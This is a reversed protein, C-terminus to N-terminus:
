CESSDQRALVFAVAEEPPMPRSFLFGQVYGCGARRLVELQADTEVGEAVLRLGLGEALTCVTSVIVQSYPDQVLDKIFYRDLKMASLKVRKIYSLSSYGTGFDDLFLRFGATELARVTNMTTGERIFCTETLEIALWAPPIQHRTTLSLLRQTLEALEFTVASFNLAVYLGAHWRDRHAHLLKCIQEAVMLDLHPILRSREAEQIFHNPPLLGRTPHQWRVLAEMGVPRGDATAHIPQLYAVFEQEAIARQLEQILALQSQMQETLQHRFFSFAGKGKEKADYMALDAYQQLRSLHEHVPVDQLDQPALAIGISASIRAFIDGLQVPEGCVAVLRQILPLLDEPEQFQQVVIVFEDGGLRAVVDQTRLVSRLRCAIQKLLQDGSSHGYTDNVVKFGDLDLFMLACQSSERRHSSLIKSLLQEYQKRNPLGTLPDFLALQVLRENADVLESTAQKVRIELEGRVVELEQQIQRREQIEQHMASLQQKLLGRLNLFDRALGGIEDLRPVLSKLRMAAVESHWHQTAVQLLEVPEAVTRRLVLYLVLVELLLSLGGTLLVLRAHEIAYDSIESAPLEAVLWWDPEPLLTAVLFRDYRPDEVIFTSQAPSDSTLLPSHTRLLQFLQRLNDDGHPEILFGDKQQTLAEKYGPHAILAGSRAILMLTTGPPTDHSTREIIEDLIVDHGIIGLFTDQQYIPSISSVMWKKINVDQYVPTWRNQRSPNQEPTAITFYLESLSTFDPSVQDFFSLNDWFTIDFDAAGVFYTDIFRNRWAPGFREVVTFAAVLVRRAELPLTKGRAIFAQAHMRFDVGQTPTRLTGDPQRHMLAEFRQDAEAQTTLALTKLLETQLELLNDEALRFLTRERQGREQLYSQREQLFQARASQFFNYYAMGTVLVIVLSIRLAAQLLARTALSGTPRSFLPQSSPLLPPLPSPLPNPAAGGASDETVSGRPVTLRTADSSAGSQTSSYSTTPPIEEPSSAQM